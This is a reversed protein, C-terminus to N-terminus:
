GAIVDGTDWIIEWSDRTFRRWDDEDELPLFDGLPSWLKDFDSTSVSFLIPSVMLRRNGIGGLTREPRNYIDATQHQTLGWQPRLPGIPILTVNNYQYPTVSVPVTMFTVSRTTKIRVIQSLQISKDATVISASSSLASM